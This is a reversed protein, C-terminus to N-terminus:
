RLTAGCSVCTSASKVNGQGCSPCITYDVGTGDARPFLNDRIDKPILSHIDRGVAGFGGGLAALSVGLANWVLLVWAIFFALLSSMGEAALIRYHALLCALILSGILGGYLGHRLGRKFGGGVVYGVALGVAFPGALPIWNLLAYLVAGGTVAAISRLIKKTGPM